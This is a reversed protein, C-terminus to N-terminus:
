WGRTGRGFFLDYAIVAGFIVTICLNALVMADIASM